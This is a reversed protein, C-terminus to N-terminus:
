YEVTGCIIKNTEMMNIYPKFCFPKYITLIYFYIRAYQTAEKIYFGFINIILDMGNM